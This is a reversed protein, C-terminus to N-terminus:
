AKRIKLMGGNGVPIGYINDASLEYLGGMPVGAVGAIEDSAYSSAGYKRLFGFYTMLYNALTTINFKYEKAAEANSRRATHLQTEPHLSPIDDFLWPRNEM